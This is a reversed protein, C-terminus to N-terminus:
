DCCKSIKKLETVGVQYGIGIRFMYAPEFHSFPHESEKTDPYASQLSLNTINDGFTSVGAGASLHLFFGKYFNVRTGIGFHHAISNSQVERIAGYTSVGDEATLVVQRKA